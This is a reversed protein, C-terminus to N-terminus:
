RVVVFLNADGRKVNLALVSSEGAADSLEKISHVRKRNVGTIEDGPRLGSRWAKSGQEVEAVTVSKGGSDKLTAGQLRDSVSGEDGGQETVATKIPAEAITVNLTQTKGEHLVTLKVEAGVRM